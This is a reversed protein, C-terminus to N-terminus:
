KIIKQFVEKSTKGLLQAITVEANKKMYAEVEAVYDNNFVERKTMQNVVWMIKGMHFDREQQAVEEDNKLPYHSLIYFAICDPVIMSRVMLRRQEETYHSQYFPYDMGLYKDLSIGLTNNGVVISQDFSGIQTYVLPIEMDPLEDKLREFSEALETNVDDMDAYEHQVDSLMM